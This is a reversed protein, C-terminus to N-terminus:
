RSPWFSNMSSPSESSEICSFTTYSSLLLILVFESASSSSTSSITPRSGPFRVIKSVHPHEFAEGPAIGAGYLNELGRPPPPGQRFSALIVVPSSGLPLLMGTLRCRGKCLSACEGGGAAETGWVASASVADRIARM